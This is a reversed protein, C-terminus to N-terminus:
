GATRVAGPSRENGLIVQQVEPPQKSIWVVMRWFAHSVTVGERKCMADFPAWEEPDIRLQTQRIPRPGTGHPRYYIDEVPVFIGDLLKAPLTM